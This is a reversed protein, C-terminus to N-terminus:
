RSCDRWLGAPAVFGDCFNGITKGFRGSEFQSKSALSGELWKASAFARQIEGAADMPYAASQMSIPFSARPPFRGDLAPKRLAPKGSSHACRRPEVRGLVM